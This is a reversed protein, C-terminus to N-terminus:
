RAKTFLLREQDLGSINLGVLPTDSHLAVRDVGLGTVSEFIGSLIDALRTHSELSLPVTAIAIGDKWATATIFATDIGPNAVALGMWNLRDTFGAPFTFNLDSTAADSLIFEAMGGQQTARYSQRVAVNPSPNQLLGFDPNLNSYDNLNIVLTQGAALTVPQDTLMPSGGSYLTLSLSAPTDGTNDAILKNEWTDWQNAIHPIILTGTPFDGALAPTFLLKENGIGSINLGSLAQDSSVAVRAVQNRDIGSFFGELISATRTGPALELTTEGLSTGTEDLAMLTATATTAGPNMLALGMWTLSPAAYHPLLFTLSTGADASLPFEAIGNDVINVFTERFLIDSSTTQVIGCSGKVLPILQQSGTPITLDQNDTMGNEDYLFISVGAPSTGTNDVTLFSQWQTTWTIHPLYFSVPSDPSAAGLAVIRTIDIPDGGGTLQISLKLTYLGPTLGNTDWLGLVNNRVERHQPGTVPFWQEPESGVGYFIQWHDTNVPLDPGAITNASGTLPLIAGVSASTPPAVSAEIVLGGKKAQPMRENVTNALLITSSDTAVIDGNFISSFVYLQISDGNAVTDSLLSTFLFTTNSGGDSFVYGGTGDILTNSVTTVSNESAGLEGIICNKLTM